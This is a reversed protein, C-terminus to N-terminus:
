KFIRSQPASLGGNQSAFWAALAEIDTISLSNSFGGMIANQREGSRYDKLAQILYSEYQGALKPYLINQSDGTTGHCAACAASKEEGVAAKAANVLSPRSNDQISSYHAAIDAMDQDSLNSAQAQMTGHTREKSKYAKLASVIYDAQQGGIMPVNYVPGPNRLGPAGHCGNCTQSIKHGRVADGTAFAPMSLGTLSLAFTFFLATRSTKNLM